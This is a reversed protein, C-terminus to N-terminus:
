HMLEWINGDVNFDVLVSYEYGNIFDRKSEDHVDFLGFDIFNDGIANPSKDYIWGVVQGAKSKQMGLAEYAENLYLYGQEQLKRNLFSQVNHLFARNIQADREWGICTEDFFRAYQSGYSFDRELCPTQVVKTVTTESGDENVVKEQVEKAKINYKLEKDLDEGFREILRNRYEKFGASEVAYAAALALNRGRMIKHSCLICGISAAGTIVAPAYMKVFELGAKARVIKADNEGDEKSYPVVAVEGAETLTETEGKEVMEDIIDLKKQTDEKVLHVKTSAKCAMVTGAVGGVIGTVILIEPSHKKLQFLGKHFARTVSTPIKIKMM